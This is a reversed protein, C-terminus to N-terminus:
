LRLKVRLVFSRVVNAFAARDALAAAAAVEPRQAVDVEVTRRPSATPTTPGLPDPLDVSSSASAPMMWGESPTTSTLPWTEVSSLRWAPKSESRDPRSFMASAPASM